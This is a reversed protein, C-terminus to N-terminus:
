NDVYGGMEFGIETAGSKRNIFLLEEGWGSRTPKHSRSLKVRPKLDHIAVADVLRTDAKLFREIDNRTEATITVGLSKLRSPVQQKEVL